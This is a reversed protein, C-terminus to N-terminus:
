QDGPDLSSPTGSGHIFNFDSGSSVTGIGAMEMINDVLPSPLSPRSKGSELSVALGARIVRLLQQKMDELFIKMDKVQDYAQKMDKVRIIAFLDWDNYTVEGSRLKSRWRGITYRYISDVFKIGRLLPIRTNMSQEATHLQFYGHSAALSRAVTAGLTHVEEFLPMLMKRETSIRDQDFRLLLRIQPNSFNNRLHYFHEWLDEIDEAFAEKAIVLESRLNENERSIKEKEQESHTYAALSALNGDELQLCRYLLVFNFTWFVFSFRFQIRGLFEHIEDVTRKVRDDNMPFTTSSEGLDHDLQLSPGDSVSSSLSFRTVAAWVSHIYVDRTRLRQEIEKTDGSGDSKAELDGGLLPTSPTRSRAAHDDSSSSSVVIEPLAQLTGLLSTSPTTAHDDSSSVVIEPLAQLTGSDM